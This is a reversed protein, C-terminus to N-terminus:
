HIATQNVEIIRIPMTVPVLGAKLVVRQGKDSAVFSMFGSGLGSRPERSIIMINRTLKYTGQAIYAQYPQYYEGTSDTSIGAVRVAKLFVNATSDNSDSIWSAGILGIANDKKTVYDIVAESTTVAFCNPPLQNIHLVSDKLYKVIGSNPSDFVIEVPASKGKVKLNKWSTM